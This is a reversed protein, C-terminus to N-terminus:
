FNKKKKKLCFVAYSIYLPRTPESIHILSLGLVGFGWFCYQLFAFITSVGSVVFKSDGFILASESLFSRSSKSLFSSSTTGFYVPYLHIARVDYETINSTIPAQVVYQLVIGTSSTSKNSTLM